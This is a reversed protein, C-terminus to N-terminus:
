RRRVWWEDLVPLSPPLVEDDEPDEFVRLKELICTLDRARESMIHTAWAGKIASSRARKLEAKAKAQDRVKLYFFLFRESYIGKSIIAVKPESVPAPLPTPSATPSSAPSSSFDNKFLKKTLRVSIQRELNLDAKHFKTRDHVAACNPCLGSATAYVVITKLCDNREQAEDGPAVSRHNDQERACRETHVTLDDEYRRICGCGRMLVKYTRCPLTASSPSRPPWWAPLATPSVDVTISMIIQRSVPQPSMPDPPQCFALLHVPQRVVATSAM